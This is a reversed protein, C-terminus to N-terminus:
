YQERLEDLTPFSSKPKINVEYGLYDIIKLVKRLGVDGSRAKELANVTARSVGIENALQQQSIHQSRRLEALQHGILQYDVLDGKYLFVKCM